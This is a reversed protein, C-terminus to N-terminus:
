RSASGYMAAPLLVHRERYSDFIRFLQDRDRATSYHPPQLARELELAESSPGFETM